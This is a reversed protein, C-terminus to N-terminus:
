FGKLQENEDRLATLIGSAWFRSGDERLHWREDEARGEALATGMEQGPADHARDEPTFLIDGSKGLIDQEKFGMTREAGPNWTTVVRNTDMTFIAYDKVNEFILRMAADQELPCPEPANTQTDPKSM